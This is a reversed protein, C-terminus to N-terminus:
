ENLFATLDDPAPPQEKLMRARSAPTLYLDGQYSRVQRRLEAIMPAVPNRQTGREGKVFPGTKTLVWEAWQLRAWCVCYDAIASDDLHSLLPNRKLLPVIRQWEKRAAEVLRATEAAPAGDKTLVSWDPEIPTWGEPKHTTRGDKRTSVLQLPRGRFAM